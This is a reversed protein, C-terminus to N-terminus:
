MPTNVVASRVVFSDLHDSFESIMEHIHAPFEKMVPTMASEMTYKFMQVPLIGDCNISTYAQDHLLIKIEGKAALIHLCTNGSLNGYVGCMKHSLLKYGNNSRALLHIPTDGGINFDKHYDPHDLIEMAGTKALIHLPTNKEIDFIKSVNTESLISIDGDLAREFITTPMNEEIKIININKKLIVTFKM